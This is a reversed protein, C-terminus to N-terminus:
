AAGKPAEEGAPPRPAARQLQELSVRNSHRCSPCRADYHRGGSEKLAELAFTIEENRMNVNGGCRQCRIQM